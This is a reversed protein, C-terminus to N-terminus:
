AREAESEVYVMKDRSCSRKVERNLEQYRESADRGQKRMRASIMSNKAEKQQEIIKWTEKSLWEKRNAKTWGLM